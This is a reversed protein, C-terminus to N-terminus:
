TIKIMKTGTSAIIEDNLILAYFARQVLTRGKRWKLIKMWQNIISDEPNEPVKGNMDIFGLASKVTNLHNIKRSSSNNDDEEDSSDSSSDNSRILCIVSVLADEVRKIPLMRKNFSTEVSDRNKLIEMAKKPNKHNSKAVRGLTTKRKKGDEGEDESDSNKSSDVSDRRDELAKVLKSQRLSKKMSQSLLNKLNKEIADTMTPTNPIKMEKPVEASTKRKGNEKSDENKREKDPLEVRAEVLPNKLGKETMWKKM